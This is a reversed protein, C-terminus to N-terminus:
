EDGSEKKQAVPVMDLNQETHNASPAAALTADWARMLTSRNLTWVNGADLMAETPAVPVMVYGDPVTQTRCPNLRAVEDLCANHTDACMDYEDSSTETKVMREPLLVDGSPKAKLAALENRASALASQLNVIALDKHDIRADRKVIEAELCAILEEERNM